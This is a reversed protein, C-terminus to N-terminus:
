QCQKKRHSRMVLYLHLSLQVSLPTILLYKITNGVAGRRKPPASSRIELSIDSHLAQFFNQKSQNRFIQARLAVSLIGSMFAFM